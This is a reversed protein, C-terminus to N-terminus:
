LNQKPFSFDEDGPWVGGYYRCQNQNAFECAAGTWNGGVRLCAYADPVMVLSANCTAPTTNGCSPATTAGTYLSDIASFYKDDWDKRDNYSSGFPDMAATNMFAAPALYDQNDVGDSIEFARNWDRVVIRIRAKIEQASDVCAFDYFPNEAGLPNTISTMVNPDYVKDTWNNVHDNSASCQNNVIGNAIGLNSKYGRNIPSEHTFTNSYGTSAASIVSRFGLQINTEDFLDRVPGAICKIKKGACEIKLGTKTQLPDVICSGTSDEWVETNYTLHGEDCDPYDENIASYNGDCLDATPAVGSVACGSRVTVVSPYKGSVDTSQMPSFQNFAFPTYQVYECVGPGAAMQLKMKIQFLDQEEVDMFCRIDLAKIDTAPNLLDAANVRCKRNIQSDGVKHLLFTPATTANTIKFYDRVELAFVFRSSGIFNAATLTYDKRPSAYTPTGSIVGTLTNLSVGLPLAPSISYIIENGSSLFSKAILKVGREAVFSVDHTVGTITTNASSTVQAEDNYIIDGVRFDTAAPKFTLDDIYLINTGKKFTYAGANGNTFIDVGLNFSASSTVNIKLSDNIVSTVTAASDLVDGQYFVKSAAVTAGGNTLYKLFITDNAATFVYSVLATATIGTGATATAYVPVAATSAIYTGTTNIKLAVNYYVPGTSWGELAAECTAQTTYVIDTCSNDTIVYAKESLFTNGNDISADQLFDGNTAEIAMKHSDLIEIVKGTVGEVLPPTIPQYITEGEKFLATSNVVLIQKNTISLDSVSAIAGLQFTDSTSSIANTATITYDTSTLVAPFTGTIEGTAANLSVCQTVDNPDNCPLAPSISYTIGNTSTIQASPVPLLPKIPYGVEYINTGNQLDYENSFYQNDNDLSTANIIYDDDIDTITYATGVGTANTTITEGEIFYKNNASINEVYLTRTSANIKFIKGVKTADGVKSIFGYQTFPVTSAVRLAVLKNIGIKTNVTDVLKAVGIVGNSDIMSNARAYAGVTATTTLLPTVDAINGAPKVTVKLLIKDSQTYGVATLTILSRLNITTYIALPEGAANRYSMKIQFPLPDSVEYWQNFGAQCATQTAYKLDLNSCLSTGASWVLPAAECAAETLYTPDSCFASTVNKIASPTGTIKCDTAGLLLGSPLTITQANGTTVLDCRDFFKSGVATDALSGDIYMPITVATGVKLSSTPATESIYYFKTPPDFNIVNGTEDVVPTTTTAASAPAAKKPPDKKFKTLSDPMCGQLILTLILPTILKLNFKKM